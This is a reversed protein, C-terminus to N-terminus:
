DDALPCLRRTWACVKQKRTDGIRYAGMVCKHVGFLRWVHVVTARIYFTAACRGRWCYISLMDTGAAVPEPGREFTGMGLSCCLRVSGGRFDEIVRVLLTVRAHRFQRARLIRHLPTLGVQVM